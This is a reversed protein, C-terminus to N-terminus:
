LGYISCFNDNWICIKKCVLYCTKSCIRIPSDFDNVTDIVPRIDTLSHVNHESNYFAVHLNQLFRYRANNQIFKAITRYIKLDSEPDFRLRFPYLQFGIHMLCQFIRKFLCTYIHRKVRHIQNKIFINM